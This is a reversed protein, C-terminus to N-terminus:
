IPDPSYQKHIRRVEPDAYSLGTGNLAERLMRQSPYTGCELFENLITQLLMQKRAREEQASCILRTQYAHTITRCLDPWLLRLYTRALQHKEAITAVSISGDGSIAERKLEAEIAKRQADTLTPRKFRPKIERVLKRLRNPERVSKFNMRLFEVPGVDLAYAIALWQPLTPRKNENLWYQFASGPLGVSLCFRRRSGSAYTSIARNLQMVFQERTALVALVPLKMVIEEIASALWEDVIDWTQEGFKGQALCTGCHCCFGIVPLQPFVHQFEGCNPCRDVMGTKHRSCIHYLDFSWALPQYIEQHADLKERLCLPCWRPHSAILGAGNFPLLESLSLLTLQSAKRIGCLKEIAESFSESHQHLGNISRADTQFFLGHRRYKEIGPSVKTFETMILRRPSVSYAAALRIVYSIMGEAVPTESAIPELAFLRSRSPLERGDAFGPYEPVFCLNNAPM